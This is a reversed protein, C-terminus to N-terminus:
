RTWLPTLDASWRPSARSLRALPTGRVHFLVVSRGGSTVTVKVEAIDWDDGPEIGEIVFAQLSGLRPPQAFAHERTFTHGGHLKPVQDSSAVIPFRLAAAGGDRALVLQTRSTNRLGDHGSRIAVTVREVPLGALESRLAEGAAVCRKWHEICSGASRFLSALVEQGASGKRELAELLDPLLGLHAFGDDRLRIERGRLVTPRQLEASEVGFRARVSAPPTRLPYPIPAECTELQPAYGNMDTGFAVAGDRGALERAAKYERIWTDVPDEIARVSLSAINWGDHGGPAEFRLGVERIRDAPPDTPLPVTVVQRSDDPLRVGENLIREETHGNDYTLRAVARSTAKLDDSGTHIEYQLAVKGALGGATVKATVRDHDRDLRFGKKSLLLASGPQVDTGLGLVGGGAFMRAALREPMQRESSGTAGRLGSHSNMWPYAPAGDGLGSIEIQAKESMHSLDVMMGLSLLVERPFGPRMGVVNKQGRVDYGQNGLREAPLAHMYPPLNKLEVMSRLQMEVDPAQEVKYFDGNHRWNHTNFVETYIATGGCDNDILHVPVVHAVGHDRRMRAIDLLSLGDMELGLLVALKGAAIAQEAQEPTTALAMWGPNKRVLDAVYRLQREASETELEPRPEPLKEWIKLDRHWLMGLTDNDTVSAIVLRLGAQWARHLWEVHVQQHLVCRAHPRGDPVHPLGGVQQSLTSLMLSRVTGTVPDGTAAHRDGDCPPIDDDPSSAGLAGGPHGWFVGGCVVQDGDVEAGFGLHSSLHVHLDAIGLIEPM